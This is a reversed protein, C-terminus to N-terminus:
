LNNGSLSGKAVVSRGTLGRYAVTIGERALDKLSAVGYKDALTFVEAHKKLNENWELETRNTARTRDTIATYTGTYLFELFSDLAMSDDYLM